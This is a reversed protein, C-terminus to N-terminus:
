GQVMDHENIIGHNVGSDPKVDMAAPIAEKCRIYIYCKCKRCEIGLEFCNSLFHRIMLASCNLCRFPELGQMQATRFYEQASM